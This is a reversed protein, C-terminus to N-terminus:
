FHEHFPRTASHSFKCVGNVLNQPSCPKYAQGQDHHRIDSAALIVKSTSVGEFKKWTEFKSLPKTSHKPQKGAAATLQKVQPELKSIKRQGAKSKMPSLGNPSGEDDGLSKKKGGGIKM